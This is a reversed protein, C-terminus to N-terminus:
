EESELLCYLKGDSHMEFSLKSYKNNFAGDVMHPVNMSKIEINGATLINQGNVTAINKGSILVAQKANLGDELEKSTVLYVIGSPTKWGIAKTSQIITNSMLDGVVVDGNELKILNAKVYGDVAGFGKSKQGKTESYIEIGDESLDNRITATGKYDPSTSSIKIDFREWRVVKNGNTLKVFLSTYGAYTMTSNLTVSAEDKGLLIQKEFGEGRANVLTILVSCGNTLIGEINEPFEMMVKTVNSEGAIVLSDNINDSEIKYGDGGLAITRKDSLLKIKIESM